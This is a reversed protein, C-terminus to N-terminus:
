GIVKWKEVREMCGNGCCLVVDWTQLRGAEMFIGLWGLIAGTPSIARRLLKYELCPLSAFRRNFLGSVDRLPVRGTLDSPRM